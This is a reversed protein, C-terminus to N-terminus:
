RANLACTCIHFRVTHFRVPIISLATASVSFVVVVVVVIVMMVPVVGAMHVVVVVVM